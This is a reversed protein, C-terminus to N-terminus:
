SSEIFKTPLDIAVHIAPLAEVLKSANGRKAEIPQIASMLASGSSGILALYEGPKVAFSLQDLVKFSGFSKGVDQFEIIPADASRDSAIEMM